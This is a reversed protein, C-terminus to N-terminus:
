KLLMEIIKKTDEPGTVAITDVGAAKVPYDNGGDLLADGIFLMDRKPINLFKEMQRIGYAKDIGKRTVDISTLGGIRIEFESLYPELAQKIELRRDNNKNWREKEELTAEQGLASFTIQTGRDGLIEGNIRLPHHYSLKKFVTNFAILIKQKEEPILNHEYVLRWDNDIRKLFRAGSTPFISLNKFLTSPCLLHALFQEQFQRPTGGGIVAIMKKKKLEHLLGCMEVDLNVKSDTLTGDLDFVIMTKETWDKQLAEDIHM